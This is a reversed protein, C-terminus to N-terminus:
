YFWHPSALKKRSKYLNLSENRLYFALAGCLAASTFHDEGRKGGRDTLTRYVIDGTPNKTFTMRELESIFELDQYSYIIKHNNSYEQLVTVSLAKAKNKVEEGDASQGLVIDQNFVIPIIKKDYDKHIFDDSDLLRQVIPKGLGGADIGIINPRFRSDLYDILRDQLGLSVSILRIRGHFKIRGHPDTYFIIIASPESYGLDIGFFVSNHPDDINPM